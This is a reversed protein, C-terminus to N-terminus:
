AGGAATSSLADAMRVLDALSRAGMKRMVSGRHAKVTIESIDLDGAVQKNLKGTTVLAMVQRERPTLTAYSASLGATRSAVLRRERDVQIAAEVAVLIDRERFPKEVFDIAGTKIALVATTIDAGYATMVIPCRGGLRQLVAALDTQSQRVIGADIVLCGPADHTEAAMFDGLMAYNRWGLGATLLWGSLQQADDDLDVIHVTPAACKAGGDRCPERRSSFAAPSASPWSRAQGGFTEIFTM